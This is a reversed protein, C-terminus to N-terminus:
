VSKLQKQDERSMKKAHSFIASRCTQRSSTAVHGSTLQSLWKDYCRVEIYYDWRYFIEITYKSPFAMPNKWRWSNQTAFWRDDTQEAFRTSELNMFICFGTMFARRENDRSPFKSLYSDSRRWNAREVGILVVPRAVTLFSKIPEMAM